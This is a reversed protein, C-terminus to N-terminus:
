AIDVEPVGLRIEGTRGRAEVVSPYDVFGLREFHRRLRSVIQNLYLRDVEILAELRRRPLWGRECPEVGARRDLVLKGALEAVLETKKRHRM